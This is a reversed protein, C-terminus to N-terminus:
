GENEQVRTALERKKLGTRTITEYLQLPNIEWVERMKISADGSSKNELDSESKNSEKIEKKIQRYYYSFFYAGVRGVIENQQVDGKFAGELIKNFIISFTNLCGVTILMFAILFVNKKNKIKNKNKNNNNVELNNVELNNVEISISTSTSTSTKYMKKFERFNNIKYKSIYTNWEKEFISFINCYIKSESSKDIDGREVSDKIRFNEYDIIWNELSLQKTTSSINEGSLNLIESVQRYFVSEKKFYESRKNLTRKQKENWWINLINLKQDYDKTDFELFLNDFGKTFQNMEYEDGPTKENIGMNKLEKNYKKKIQIMRKYEFHNSLIELIKDDSVELERKIVQV